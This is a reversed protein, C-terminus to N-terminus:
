RCEEEYHALLIALDRRDTDGDGDVDGADTLYYAALLIGLDTQDVRGSGDLDAATCANFGPHEYAGM